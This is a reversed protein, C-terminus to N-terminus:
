VSRGRLSVRERGGETAFFSPPLSSCNWHEGEQDTSDQLGNRGHQSDHQHDKHQKADNGAADYRAHAIVAPTRRVRLDHLAQFLLETEIIGDVYAEAGVNGPEHDTIEPGREPRALRDRGHDGFPHPWRQLQYECGHRKRSRDAYRE